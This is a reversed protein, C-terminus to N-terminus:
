KSTDVISKGPLRIVTIGLADAGAITLGINNRSDPICTEM